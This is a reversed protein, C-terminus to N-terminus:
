GVQHVVLLVAQKESGDRSDNDAVILECRDAPLRMHAYVSDLCERLLERVNWNVIIISLTLPYEAHVPSSPFVPGPDEPVTTWRPRGLRQRFLRRM